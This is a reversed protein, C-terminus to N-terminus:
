RPERSQGTGDLVLAAIWDARLRAGAGGSRGRGSRRAAQGDVRGEVARRARLIELLRTSEPKAGDDNFLAKLDDSHAQWTSRRPSADAGEIDARQTSTSSSSSSSSSPVIDAAGPAAGSPTIGFM